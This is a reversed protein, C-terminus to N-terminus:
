LRRFIGKNLYGVWQCAGAVKVVPQLTPADQAGSLQWRGAGKGLKLQVAHGTDCPCMFYLAEAQGMATFCYDGAISCETPNTRRHAVCVTKM